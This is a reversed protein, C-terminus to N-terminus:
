KIKKRLEKYDKSLFVICKEKSDSNVMDIFKEQPIAKLFFATLEKIEKENKEKYAMLLENKQNKEMMYKKLSNIKAEHREAESRSKKEALILKKRQEYCSKKLYTEVKLKEKFAKILEHDQKRLQNCADSVNKMLDIHVYDREVIEQASKLAKLTAKIKQCLANQCHKLGPYQYEHGKHHTKLDREASKIMDSLTGEDGESESRPNRGRSPSEVIYRSLVCKWGAIITILIIVIVVLADVFNKVAYPIGLFILIYGILYAWAFLFLSLWDKKIMDTKIKM